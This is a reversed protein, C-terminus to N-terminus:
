SLLGVIADLGNHEIGLMSGARVVPKARYAVSVGAVAMMKLDNAGDGVVIAEAPDCGIAACTELVTDRKLDADVIPDFVRGSLKGDIIELTNARTYDIPLRSRLRETFYTFGGSVLLIKLGAARAADLLDEAGPSLRLREEYVQKLVSEDLGALLAVRQRLSQAFDPIEGRMSAETIAAVDAKRGAFEAIEDICEITILTSDMDFAILRFDALRCGTPLLNADVGHRAAIEGSRRTDVDAHEWTASANDVRDPPRGLLASFEAVTAPALGPRQIIFRQTM